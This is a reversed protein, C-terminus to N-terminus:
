FPLFDFSYNVTTQLVDSAGFNALSIAALLRRELAPDNMTSNLIEATSVSGDPEIVIKFEITGKLTPDKRLARQYIGDMRGRLANMKQAIQAETRYSSDRKVEEKAQAVAESVEEMKSEVETTQKTGLAVDGGTERSLAATNVGGSKKKAGSTLLNRDAKAAEGGGKSLKQNTPKVEAVDFSERMDALEDLAFNQEFSKKAEEKAKKLKIPEPEKKPKPEEKPPEPKKEPEPPKEEPKKEEPKKEEKPPPPPPPPPKPLEKKQLVIRAKQVKKNVEEQTLEPVNIFPIAIGILFFPVALAILIKKFRKGDEQSTSWPLQLNPSMLLAM